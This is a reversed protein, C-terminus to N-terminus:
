FKEGALLLTIRSKSFIIRNASTQKNPDKIRLKDLAKNIAKVLHFMGVVIKANPFVTEAVAKYQSWMDM